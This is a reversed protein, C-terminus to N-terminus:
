NGENSNGTAELSSLTHSITRQVYRLKGKSPLYAKSHIDMNLKLKTEFAPSQGFNTSRLSLGMELERGFITPKCSM